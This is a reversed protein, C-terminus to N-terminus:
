LKDNSQFAGRQFYLLTDCRSTTGEPFITVKQGKEMLNKLKQSFQHREDKKNAQPVFVCGIGRCIQSFLPFTLIEEKALFNGIGITLLIM